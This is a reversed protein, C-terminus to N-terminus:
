LTSDWSTNAPLQYVESDFTSFGAAQAVEQAVLDWQAESEIKDGIPAPTQMGTAPSASVDPTTTATEGTVPIQATAEPTGTGTASVVATQTATAPTATQVSGCATMLAMIALMVLITSIKRIM